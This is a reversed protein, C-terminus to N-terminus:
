LLAGRAESGDNAPRGGRVLAAAERLENVGGEGASSLVALRAADLEVPKTLRVWYSDTLWATINAEYDSSSSEVGVRKLLATVQSYGVPAGTGGANRFAAPDFRRGRAIVLPDDSHCMLAYHARKAGSASDGRSTVIVHPPLPRESGYADIYCRWALTRSPAVDIAKPRSKMVSFIVPVPQGLRALANIMLAPANGVGWFFLGNGARREMEKRAIIGELTQGAETQMRSWCVYEDPQERYFSEGSWTTEAATASNSGHGM